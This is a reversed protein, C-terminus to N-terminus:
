KARVELEGFGTRGYREPDYMDEASAPPYIYRGPAVPNPRVVIPNFLGQHKISRALKACFDKSLTRMGKELTKCDQILKCKILQVDM